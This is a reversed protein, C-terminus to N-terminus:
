KNLIIINEFGLRGQRTASTWPARSLSLYSPLLPSLSRFVVLPASAVIEKAKALAMARSEPNSSSSSAIGMEAAVRGGTTNILPRSSPSRRHPSPTTPHNYPTPGRSDVVRALAVPSPSPSDADSSRRPVCGVTGVLLSAGGGLWGVFAYSGLNSSM